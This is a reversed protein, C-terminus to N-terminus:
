LDFYQLLGEGNATWIGIGNSTFDRVPAYARTGLVVSAKQAPGDVCATTGDNGAVWLRGSIYALRNLPADFWSWESVPQELNRVDWQVLKGNELGVSLEDGNGAISLFADSRPYAPSVAPLGTRMDSALVASDCAAFILGNPLFCFDNIPSNFTVTSTKQRTQLNWQVVTRDRAGSYLDTGNLRLRSLASTHGQYQGTFEYETSSYEYIRFDLSAAFFLHHGPDVLCDVIDFGLSPGSFPVPDTGIYTLFLRGQCDGSLVESGDATM